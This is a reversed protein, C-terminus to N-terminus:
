LGHPFGMSIVRLPSVIGNRYGALAGFTGPVVEASKGRVTSGVPEVDRHSKSDCGTEDKASGDRLVLMM